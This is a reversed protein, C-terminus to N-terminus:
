DIIGGGIVVDGDYLVVSQGKAIARQPADFTVCISDESTQIVTAVQEAQKYRVKATVRLPVEIRDCAILNIRHATLTDTFLDENAGLTVTNNTADKAVVFAPKGLAIGLGKRQGITYRIMGGHKGLLRGSLDIFDGEPYKEEIQREIFTAYDGDPVFCIDQSDKKEANVFGRERAIERVESKRYQGLPFLTKSLQEQTLAYLVYTQDKDADLAKQLLYRGSPDMQIRAYHGTAIREIELAEAHSILREFKVYRNCDVCPNPTGGELYTRIFRDIVNERFTEKFNLVSHPIGLHTAIRVADEVEKQSCCSNELDLDLSEDHLRLTAGSVSYGDKQLLFSAVASDVGGSMGVVIKQITM